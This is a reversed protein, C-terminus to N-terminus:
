GRRAAREYSAIQQVTVDGMNEGALRARHWRVTQRIAEDISWRPRWALEARARSSDIRLQDTEHLNDTAAAHTVTAGEGWQEAATRAVEAVTAHSASEPGFNWASAFRGGDDALLREGLELYGSLPELVHQWPRVSGPNRLQVPEGDAFARMCDPLLRDLAWDGGGIVNGARATAVHVPREADAFFSARYGATVIEASAKSAAYVDHGGLADTERYPHESRRNAYVKDTTIVVIARVSPVDRAAELVHATGLVNTQLTVLPLRYSQRVLPQAALHFVVEPQAARYAQRLSALDALDARMDAALAAAVRADAFFSPAADPDLAYGYVRARLHNLWVALWGGKFGTHGTLLVSRNQWFSAQGTM